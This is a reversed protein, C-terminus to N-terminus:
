HGKIFDLTAQNFDAPKEWFFTHGAEPIVTLKSNPIHEALLQSYRPALVMDEQGVIIHTPTRIESLRDVADHQLIAETQRIFGDVSQPFPNSSAKQMFVDVAEPQEFFRYTFVWVFLMQYFEELTCRQRAARWAAVLQELYADAMPTTCVLTLSRLRDPYNLAFEQAIMGGMSAGILHVPGDIDLRGLLGATDDAFTRMDYSPSPSPGTQGVDRNDFVLCRYGAATFGPVQTMTWTLYDGGLGSIFVLPEGEGALEYYINLGNVDIKPM